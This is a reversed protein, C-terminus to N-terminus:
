RNFPRKYFQKLSSISEREADTMKEAQKKRFQQFRELAALTEKQPNRVNLYLHGHAILRHDDPINENSMIKMLFDEAKKDGNAAEDGIRHLWFCCNSEPPHKYYKIIEELSINKKQLMAPM